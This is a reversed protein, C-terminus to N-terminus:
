LSPLQRHTLESDDADGTNLTTSPEFLMIWVEEEAVPRHEVGKPIVVLQNPGVSLVQDRLEIKLQGKFVFFLEDGHEHRHWTFEGQIKAFKVACDNVNGVVHPLWHEHIQEFKQGLDVVEIM